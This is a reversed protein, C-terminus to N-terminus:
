SRQKGQAREAGIAVGESELTKAVSGVVIDVPREASVHHVHDPYRKALEAILPATEHRYAERREEITPGRDDRRHRQTMRQDATRDSVDLVVICALRFGLHDTLRLFYTVQDPSRPYGDFILTPEEVYSLERILVNTVIETPALDGREMYERIAKGRPDDLSAEKRLLRGTVITRVGKHEALRDAVTTKGCGPPGLLVSATREPHRGVPENRVPGRAEDSKSGAMSAKKGWWTRLSAM